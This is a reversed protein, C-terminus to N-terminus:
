ACECRRHQEGNPHKGEHRRQIRMPEFRLKGARQAADMGGGNQLGIPGKTQSRYGCDHKEHLLVVEFKVLQARHESQQWGDLPEFKDCQAKGTHTQPQERNAQHGPLLHRAM